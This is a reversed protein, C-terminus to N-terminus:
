ELLNKQQKIAGEYGLKDNKATKEATKLEKQITKLSESLKKIVFEDPEM